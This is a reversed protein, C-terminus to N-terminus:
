QGLLLTETGAQPTVPESGFHVSGAAASSTLRLRSGGGM